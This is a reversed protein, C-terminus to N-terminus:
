NNWLILFFVFKKLYRYIYLYFKMMTKRKEIKIVLKWRKFLYYYVIFFVGKIFMIYDTIFIM